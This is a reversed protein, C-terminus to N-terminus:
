AAVTEKEHLRTVEEKSCQDLNKIIRAPAGGALVGAPLSKTVVSGAAVITGRGITVGANVIVSRALWVDDELIIDKAQEDLDPAGMARAKAEMPHGPYGALTGQGAIRVNDGIVIRTGIYIGSGWGIDVNDGVTLEPRIEGASRGAVTIQTSIRCDDGVRMDLPGTLYPLGTGYLFLRKPNNQMWSMFVPKWYLVNVSWLVFSSFTKIIAYLSSHVVPITPFDARLISKLFTYIARKLPTDQQKISMKIQTLFKM